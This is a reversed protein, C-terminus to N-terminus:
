RSDNKRSRRRDIARKKFPAKYKLEIIYTMWGSGSHARSATNSPSAEVHMLGQEILTGQKNVTQECFGAPPTLLIELARDSDMEGWFCAIVKKAAHIVRWQLKRNRVNAMGESAREYLSLLTERSLQDLEEIMTLAALGAKDPAGAEQAMTIARELTAQATDWKKLRALAIGHAILAEAFLSLQTNNDFPSNREHLVPYKSKPIHPRAVTVNRMLEANTKELDSVAQRAVAEAEQLRGASLLAYALTQPTPDADLERQDAVVQQLFEEIDAM